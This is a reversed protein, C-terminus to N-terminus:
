TAYCNKLEGEIFNPSDQSCLLQFARHRWAEQPGSAVVLGVSAGEGRKIVSEADGVRIKNTVHWDGVNMSHDKGTDVTKSAPSFLGDKDRVAFCLCDTTSGEALPGVAKPERFIVSCIPTGPELAAEETRKCIEKPIFPIEYASSAQRSPAVIRHQSPLDGGM